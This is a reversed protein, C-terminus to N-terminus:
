RQRPWAYWNGAPTVVLMMNELPLWAAQAWPILGLLRAMWDTMRM